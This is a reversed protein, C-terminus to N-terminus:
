HLPAHVAERPASCRARLGSLRPPQGLEQRILPACRIDDAPAYGFFCMDKLYLKEVSHKADAGIDAITLNTAGHHTVPRTADLPVWTLRDHGNTKYPGLLQRMLLDYDTALHEYCLTHQCTRQGSGDWVFEVQPLFHCQGRNLWFERRSATAVAQLIWKNLAASNNMSPKHEETMKYESLLRDLPHRVVCFTATKKQNGWPWSGWDRPPTHWWVCRSRAMRSCAKDAASPGGIHRTVRWPLYHEMTAGATKPVHIFHVPAQDGSGCSLADDPAAPVPTTWNNASIRLRKDAGHPLLPPAAMPMPSSQARSPSVRALSAPAACPSAYQDRRGNM